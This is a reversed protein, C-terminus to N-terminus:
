RWLRIATKAIENTPTAVLGIHSLSLQFSAADAMPLYTASGYVADVGPLFNGHNQMLTWIDIAPNDNELMYVSRAKLREDELSFYRGSIRDLRFGPKAGLASILGTWRIIRADIQWQDGHISFEQTDKNIYYTISATFLQDSQKTFTVSAVPKDITLEDYHGLDWAIYAVLCCLVLLLLGVSGRLWAVFWNFHRLLKVSLYLALGGILLSTIIVATIYM